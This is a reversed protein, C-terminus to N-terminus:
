SQHPRGRAEREHVLQPDTPGNEISVAPTWDSGCAVANQQYEWKTGLYLDKVIIGAHALQKWWSWKKEEDSLWKIAPAEFDRVEPGSPARWSPSTQAAWIKM